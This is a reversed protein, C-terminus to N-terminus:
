VLPPLRSPLSTEVVKFWGKRQTYTFTFTVPITMLISTSVPAEALQRIFSTYKDYLLIKLVKFSTSAMTVPASPDASGTVPCVRCTVTFHPVAMDEADNRTNPSNSPTMPIRPISTRLGRPMRTSVSRRTAYRRLGDEPPPAAEQPITSGECGAM